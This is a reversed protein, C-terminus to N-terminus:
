DKSPKRNVQEKIGELMDVALPIAGMDIRHTVVRGDDVKYKCVGPSVEGMNVASRCLLPQGNILIAVTIM